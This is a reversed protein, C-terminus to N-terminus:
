FPRTTDSGVGIDIGVEACDADALCLATLMSGRFLESLAWFGVNVLYQVCSQIDLWEMAIRSKESSSIEEDSKKKKWDLHLQREILRAM